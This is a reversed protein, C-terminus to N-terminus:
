DNNDDRGGYLVVVSLRPVYDLTHCYRAPPKRGQTEPKLAQFKARGSKSDKKVSIVYLDNSAKGSSKRGGFMYFGEYKILELAEGWNIEGAVQNLSLAGDTGMKSSYFVPALAASSIEPLTTKSTDCLALNTKGRINISIELFEDYIKGGPGQGGISFVSDDIKFGCHYIRRGVTADSFVVQDVLVMRQVDFIILDNLLLRQNSNSEFQDGSKQGGFLIM